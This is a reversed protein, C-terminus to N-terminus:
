SKARRNVCHAKSEANIPGKWIRASACIQRKHAGSDRRKDVAAKPMSAWVVSSPWSGVGLPPPGLDLRIDLAVPIRVSTQFCITPGHEPTPFVVVHSSGGLVENM